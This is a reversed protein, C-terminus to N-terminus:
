GAVGTKHKLVLTARLEELLTRQSSALERIATTELSAVMHLTEELTAYAVCLADLYPVTSPNSQTQSNNSVASRHHSAQGQAAAPQPIGARLDRHRNGIWINYTNAAPQDRARYGITGTHGVQALQISTCYSPSTQYAQLGPQEQASLPHSM